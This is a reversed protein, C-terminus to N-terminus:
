LVASNLTHNTNNLHTFEDLMKCRHRQNTESSADGENRHVVTKPRVSTVDVLHVSHTKLAKRFKFIDNQKVRVATVELNTSLLKNRQM